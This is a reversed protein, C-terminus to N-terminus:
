KASPTLKAYHAKLEIPPINASLQETDAATLPSWRLLTHYQSLFCLALQTTHPPLPPDLTPGELPDFGLATLREQLLGV